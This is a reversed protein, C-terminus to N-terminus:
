TAAHGQLGILNAETTGEMRGFLRWKIVDFSPSIQSRQPLRGTWKLNGWHLFSTLFVPLCTLYWIDTPLTPLDHNLKIKSGLSCLPAFTSLQALLSRALKKEACIAHTVRAKSSCLPSTKCSLQIRPHNGWKGLRYCWAFRALVGDRFPIIHPIYGNAMSSWWARRICHSGGPFVYWPITANAARKQVLLPKTNGFAQFCRPAAIPPCIKGPSSYQHCWSSNSSPACVVWLM